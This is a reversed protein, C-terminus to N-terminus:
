GTRKKLIHKLVHRLSVQQEGDGDMMSNRALCAPRGSLRGSTDSAKLGELIEMEMEMEMEMESDNWLWRSKVQGFRDEKEPARSSSSSSSCCDKGRGVAGNRENLYPGVSKQMPTPLVAAVRQRDVM